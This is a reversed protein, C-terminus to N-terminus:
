EFINLLSPVDLVGTNRRNFSTHYFMVVDRNRKAMFSTIGFGRTISISVKCGIPRLLDKSARNSMNLGWQCMNM